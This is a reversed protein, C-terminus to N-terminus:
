DTQRDTRQWELETMKIPNREFKMYPNRRDFERELKFIPNTWRVIVMVALLIAAASTYARKTVRVRDIKILNREFKM